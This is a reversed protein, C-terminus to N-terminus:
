NFLASVIFSFGSAAVLVEIIATHIRVNLRDIMWRAGYAGPIMCSGVLLGVLFLSADLHDLSTLFVAKAVNVLMGIVADTGVLGGGSLGIGLLLPMLIIGGGPLAGSVVGFGASVGVIAGQTPAVKRRALVRRLPISVLLFLGIAIALPRQPLLDYFFVGLAAGPVAPVVIQLIPGRQIQRRYVWARSINGLTMAVAMVPVVGEVGVVLALFPMVILGAGFGSVGGLVAGLFAIVGLAAFRWLDFAQGSGSVLDM